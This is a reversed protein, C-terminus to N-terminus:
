DLIKDKIFSSITTYWQQKLKEQIKIKELASVRFRIVSDQKAQHQQEARILNPIDALLLLIDENLFEQDLKADKCVIRSVTEDVQTITYAYKKNGVETYNKLTM